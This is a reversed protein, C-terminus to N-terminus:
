VGSNEHRREVIGIVPDSEPNKRLQDRITGDDAYVGDIEHQTLSRKMAQRVLLRGHLFIQRDKAAHRGATNRQKTLSVTVTM